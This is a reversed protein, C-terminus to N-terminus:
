TGEAPRSLIEDALQDIDTGQPVNAQAGMAQDVAKQLGRRSVGAERALQKDTPIGQRFKQRAIRAEVARRLVNASIKKPSPM